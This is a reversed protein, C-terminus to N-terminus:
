LDAHLCPFQAGFKLATPTDLKVAPEVYIFEEVIVEGELQILYYSEQETVDKQDILQSILRQSLRAVRTVLVCPRVEVNAKCGPIVVLVQRHLHLRLKLERLAELHEDLREAVPRLPEGDELLVLLVQPAQQVRACHGVIGGLHRYPVVM